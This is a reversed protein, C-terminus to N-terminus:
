EGSEARSTVVGQKLRTRLLQDRRVRQADRLIEGTAADM